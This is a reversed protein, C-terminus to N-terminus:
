VNAVPRLDCAGGCSRQMDITCTYRREPHMTVTMFSTIVRCFGGAIAPV